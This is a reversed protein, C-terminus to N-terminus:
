FAEIGPVLCGLFAGTYIASSEVADLFYSFDFCLFFPPLIWSLCEARAFPLQFKRNARNAFGVILADPRGIHRRRFISRNRLRRGGGTRLGARVPRDLLSAPCGSSLVLSWWGIGRYCRHYICLKRNGSRLRCFKKRYPRCLNEFCM